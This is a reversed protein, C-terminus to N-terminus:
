FWFTVVGLGVIALAGGRVIKDRVFFGHCGVFRCVSLIVKGCSLFRRPPYCWACRRRGFVSACRKDAFYRCERGRGARGATVWALVVPSKVCSELVFLALIEAV